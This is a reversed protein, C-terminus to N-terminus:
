IPLRVTVTTGVHETSEIGVTGGHEEAIQKVSALGIGSGSTQLAVNRARFMSDFVRPLEDAPIGIGSDSVSLVAVDGRVSPERRLAVTVNGGSPSYKMANEILNHLVRGLRQEDWQGIMASDPTELSFRYGDTVGAVDAIHRQALAVLDTPRRELALSHGMEGRAFDLLEDLMGLMGGVSRRMEVLHKAFEDATDTGLAHSSRQLVQAWLDVVALPGKLDHSVVALVNDRLRAAAEAEIRAASAEQFALRLRGHVWSILLAVWVFVVADIATRPDAADIRGAPREFLYNVCAYGLLTALLGPGLGGYWTALMVAALFLLFPGRDTVPFVLLSLLAAYGTLVVSMGYRWVSSRGLVADAIARRTGRRVRPVAASRAARRGGDDGLSRAAPLSDGRPSHVAVVM